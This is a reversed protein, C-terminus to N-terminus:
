ERFRQSEALNRWIFFVFFILCFPMPHCSMVHPSFQFSCPPPLLSVQACAAIETEFVTYLKLFADTGSIQQQDRQKDLDYKEYKQCLADVRTLLDIVSM